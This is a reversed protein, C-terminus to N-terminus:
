PRGQRVAWPFVVRPCALAHGAALRAGPPGAPELGGLALAEGAPGYFAVSRPGAGVPAEGSEVVPRRGYGLEAAAAADLTVAPLVRLAEALPM